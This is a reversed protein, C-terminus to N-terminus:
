RTAGARAELAAQRRARLAYLTKGGGFYVTQEGAVDAVAPSLVIQGSYTTLHVKTSYKWRVPATRATPLAYFTGAWDGVYVSEGVVAPTATVVDGRQLVVAAEAELRQHPQHRDTRDVFTRAPGQGWTPWDCRAVPRPAADDGSGGGGCAAALSCLRSSM